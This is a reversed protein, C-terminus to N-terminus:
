RAGNTHTESTIPTNATHRNYYVFGFVFLPRPEGQCTSPALVQFRSSTVPCFVPPVRWSVYPFLDVAETGQSKLHPQTNRPSVLIKLPIWNVLCKMSNMATFHFLVCICLHIYM